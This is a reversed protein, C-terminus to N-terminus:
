GLKHLILEYTLLTMASAPITRVLNTGLGKYFGRYGEERSIVVLADMVGAYKFPPVTQNQLRTRIVEHPYTLCSAIAKAISSSALILPTHVHGDKDVAALQSKFAEYLPFQVAVHSVGLLSPVLGKYFGRM